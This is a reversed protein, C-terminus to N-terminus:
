GEEGERLGSLIKAEVATPFPFSHNFHLRRKMHKYVMEIDETSFHRSLNKACKENPQKNTISNGRFGKLFLVLYPLGHQM